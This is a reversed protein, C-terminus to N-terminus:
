VEFRPISPYGITFDYAEIEDKTTLSKIAFEHDTTRNYCDIAYIELASLMQSLSVCPLVISVGKDRLDLRYTDRGMAICDRIANKLDNREDKSAWYHLEQGQYMIICDNVESSNDYEKLNYLKRTKATKVLMFMPVEKASNVPVYEVWGNELLMEHTPNYVNGKVENEEGTKKDTITRTVSLVIENRQRRVLKGDIEKEYTKM